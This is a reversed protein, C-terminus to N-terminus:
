QKTAMRILTRLDNRTEGERLRRAVIVLRDEELCTSLTLLADSPVVDIPIAYQSRLQLQRIYTAFEKDSAFTNHTFYNFFRENKPDLSVDLVAFIVYQEKKWLTDFYIFPHYRLYTDDHLYQVLHGFMTGDKMNHGHLLLNQTKEKFPHNVDLFITGSANKQKNFDRTLYYENNRYVVPLDLVEPIQIWATLDRNKEYLAAMEPLADGGVRHYKTTKVIDPLATVTPVVLHEVELAANEQMAPEAAMEPQLEPEFVSTEPQGEIIAARQQSLEENLRTTRVSRLVISGIQWASFVAVCVLAASILRTVLQENRAAGRRKQPHRQIGEAQQAHAKGRGHDEEPRVPTLEYEQSVSEQQSSRRQASYRKVHGGLMGAAQLAKKLGERAAILALVVLGSLGGLLSKGANKAPSALHKFKEASRKKPKSLKKRNKKQQDQKKQAAHKVPDITEEDIRPMKPIQRAEEQVTYKESTIDLAAAQRRRRHVAGTEMLDPHNLSVKEEQAPMDQQQIELSEAEKQTLRQARRRREEV